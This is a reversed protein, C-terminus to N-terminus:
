KQGFWKSFLERKGTRSELVRTKKRLCYSGTQESRFSYLTNEQLKQEKKGKLGIGRYGHKM